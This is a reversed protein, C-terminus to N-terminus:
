MLGYAQNAKTNVFEQSTRVSPPQIEAYVPVSGPAPAPVENNNKPTKLFYKGLVIGLLLGTIFMLISFTLLLM